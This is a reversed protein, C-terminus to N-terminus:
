KLQQLWNFFIEFSTSLRGEPSLFWSHKSKSFFLCHGVQGEVYRANVLSPFMYLWVQTCRVSKPDFFTATALFYENNPPWKHLLYEFHSKLISTMTSLHDSNPSPRQSLNSQAIYCSLMYHVHCWHSSERDQHQQQCTTWVDEENLKNTKTKSKEIGQQKDKYFKLSSSDICLILWGPSM